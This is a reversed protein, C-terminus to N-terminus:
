EVLEPETPRDDTEKEEENESECVDVSTEQESSTEM